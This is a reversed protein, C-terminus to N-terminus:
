EPEAPKVLTSALPYVHPSWDVQCQFTAGCGKDDKSTGECIFEFGDGRMDTIHDPYDSIDYSRQCAPCEFLSM